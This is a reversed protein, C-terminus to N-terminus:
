RSSTKRYPTEITYRNSLEAKKEEYKKESLTMYASHARSEEETLKKGFRHNKDGTMSESHKMISIETEKTLGLKWGALPGTASGYGNNRSWDIRAESVHNPCYKKFSYEGKKYLTKEDCIPCTPRKGDMFFQVLYDELKIRHKSGVHGALASKNKFVTKCIQCENEKGTPVEVVINQNNKNKGM